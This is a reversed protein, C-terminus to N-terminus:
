TRVIRWATQERITEVLNIARIRLPRSVTSSVKVANHGIENLESAPRMTISWAITDKANKRKIM